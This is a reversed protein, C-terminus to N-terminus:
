RYAHVSVTGTGENRQLAALRPHQKTLAHEGKLWFCLWDVTGQMSTMREWPRVLEHTAQPLYIMEVPKKLRSLGSFWEWEGLISERGLAQILVPTHVEELQFGPASHAWFGLSHFPVGGNVAESDSWVWPRANGLAVYQFYGADFGDAVVAARFPHKSHTLTYKVHFCTRSFGVLGVRNPDVIGLGELYDVVGDYAAMERRAERATDMATEDAVAAEGSGIGVQVVIIGENALPQAAFATAMPGDIWFKERNWGHTQIVLPYQTGLRYNPPLYLGGRIERGDTSKWKIEKVQGLSLSNLQPNLDLVVAHKGTKRDTAIVKPSTQCDEVLSLTVPDSSAIRSNNSDDVPMWKNAIKSYSVLNGEAIGLGINRHGSKDFELRNQRSDWALLVLDISTIPLVKRSPVNIEAVFTHDKEVYIKSALEARSPLFAGTVVVSKSDSSWAIESAWPIIPANLLPTAKGNGTDVLTFRAVGTKNGIGNRVYSDHYQQWGQPIREAISKVALYRNDPSLHLSRYYSYTDLRDQVVIRRIKGTVPSMSFLEGRLSAEENNNGAILDAVPQDKVSIGERKTQRTLLSHARQEAMFFLNDANTNMAFSVLSTSHHTLQRLERTVIDFTYLQTNQGPQEGLFALETNNLWKVNQIAPRNSSSSFQVLTIPVPSSLLDKTGFLLMVYDNTNHVLNGRALVLVFHERDPSHIAMSNNFATGEVTPLVLRYM